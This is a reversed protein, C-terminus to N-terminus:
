GLPLRPPPPPPAPAPAGRQQQGGSLEHGGRRSLGALDALRLAEAGRADVAGREGNLGFAVNEGVDLHPFLAYHQFVMGFHRRAPPLPTVDDGAVRIRGAQPAEFGALMRLITTKGSGSPGLLALIEGQAIDLSVPGIEVTPSFRVSLQELTLCSMAERPKQWGRERGVLADVRRRARGAHGLGGGGREKSRARRAGVAAALGPAPGPARASSLSAAGRAVAGRRQRGM